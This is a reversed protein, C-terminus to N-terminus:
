QEAGVPVFAAWDIPATSQRRSRRDRLLQLSANRVAEAIGVNQSLYAKYLGQMWTRTVEDEVPWLSMILNRAGAVQFARRLGFVGEGARVEGLGTECASLVALEVSRLDIAAVEEATLIGDDEDAGAAQRHNAGAFVLGTLLLPNEEDASSSETQGPDLLLMVGRMPELVSSCSESLVFGHTAVHLVSRGPAEQKFVSESAEAGTLELVDPTADSRTRRDVIQGGRTRRWASVVDAVELASAPLPRFFLSQFGECHSTKGRFPRATAPEDADSPIKSEAQGESQSAVSFPDTTDYDVGGLALLGEGRTTEARVRALDREASVYQLVPCEEILFRDKGIPLAALNLLQLSGEPVVFVKKANQVYPLIPDWVMQRLVTGVTAANGDSGMGGSNGAQQRWLGVLSDVRATSGLYVAVPTTTRDRLVFSIYHSAPKTAHQARRIIGAPDTYRVYSVLCSGEALARAVQAAGARTWLKEERFAASREALAAESEEGRKRVQDVLSRYSTVSGGGPGRVLLNALQKQNSVYGNFLRTVASDGAAWSAQHRAAMEDLVLARSRIVADWARHVVQSDAASEAASALLVSLGSARVSEYRLAQRESLTRITLRLHDCSIKEAGAAANVASDRRGLQVDVAALVALTSALDPHNSGLSKELIGVSRELQVRALEYDGTVASLSAYKVLTRALIPHDPGPNQEEIQVARAMLLRANEYDGAAQLASALNGLSIAVFPHDPGLAKEQIKLAREYLSRAGASDGSRQTLNALTTLSRAVEPHDQGLSKEQISLAREELPRAGSYDGMQGHLVALNDLTVALDPHDVPLSKEQIALARDLLERARRYDGTDRCLVSLNNLSWAVQPHTPGWSSEWIGLAREYMPQAKSYDGVLGLANALSDLVYAVEPHDPGLAKERIALARELIPIGEDFSGTVVLITGLNNLTTGVDPHEPGLTKEQIALARRIFAQANQYDGVEYLASALNNLTGALERAEPGLVKEQIELARRFLTQAGSYDATQYLLGALHDLTSAVKPDNPGLAKEQISLARELLPRAGAFDGTFRLVNGMNILSTALDLDGAGPSMERIRLSREALVRTEADAAKGNQLRAEVLLDLVAATEVSNEGHLREMHSLLIRATSDAESFRGKDILTRITALDLSDSISVSSGTLSTDQATVGVSSLLMLLPLIGLARLWSNDLRKWPKM